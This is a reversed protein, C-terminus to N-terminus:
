LTAGAHLKPFNHKKGRFASHNRGKTQAAPSSKVAFDLSFFYFVNLKKHFKKRVYICETKKKM